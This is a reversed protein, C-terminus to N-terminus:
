PNGITKASRRGRADILSSHWSNHHANVDGLIFTDDDNFFSLIPKFDFRYGQQCSPPPPIYINFVNVDSNNIVASIALTESHANDLSSIDLPAFSISHHVFFAVGDGSPRVKNIFNYGPISIPVLIKSYNRRKFQQSASAIIFSFIESITAVRRDKGSNWQLEM